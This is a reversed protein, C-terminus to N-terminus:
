GEGFIAVVGTLILILNLSSLDADIQGDWNGEVHEGAGAVLGGHPTVGVEVPNLSMFM